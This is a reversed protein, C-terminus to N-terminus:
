DRYSYDDGRDERMSGVQTYCGSLALATVVVAAVPACKRLFTVMTSEKSM